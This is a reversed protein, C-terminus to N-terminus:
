RGGPHQLPCCALGGAEICLGALPSVGTFDTRRHAVPGHRAAPLTSEPEIRFLGAGADFWRDRLETGLSLYVDIERTTLEAVEDTCDHGAYSSRLEAAQVYQQSNRITGESIGLTKALGRASMGREAQMQRFMKGLLVPNDTGSRNRTYCQRMAEFNDAQVIECDVEEWNLEVAIRWGHEGDVVEYQGDSRLRVVIPKTLHGLRRSEAKQQEFEAPPKRNPNFANPHLQRVPLRVITAPTVTNQREDATNANGDAGPTSSTPPGDAMYDGFGGYDDSCTDDGSRADTAINERAPLTVAPPPNGTNGNGNKLSVDISLDM